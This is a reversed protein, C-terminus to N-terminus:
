SPTLGKFFLQWGSSLLLVTKSRRSFRFDNQISIPRGTKIFDTAEELNKFEKEREYIMYVSRRKKTPITNEIDGQESDSIYHLAGFVEM